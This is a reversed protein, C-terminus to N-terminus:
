AEAAVPGQVQSDAAQRFQDPRERVYQEGLLVRQLGEDTADQGTVPVKGALGNKKLVSIASGGLGDNAAAVGDVKGGAKAVVGDARVFTMGIVLDRVALATAVFWDHEQAHGPDKGVMYTLKNLVVNRFEAVDDRTPADTAPAVDAPIVPEGDGSALTMLGEPTSDPDPSTEGPRLNAM